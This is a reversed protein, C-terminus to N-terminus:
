TKHRSGSPILTGSVVRTAYNPRIRGGTAGVQDKAESILPRLCDDARIGVGRGTLARGFVAM